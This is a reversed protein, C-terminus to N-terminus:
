IGTALPTISYQRLDFWLMGAGMKSLSFLNFVQIFSSSDRKDDLSWIMLLKKKRNWSVCKVSVAWSWGPKSLATCNAMSSCSSIFKLNQKDGLGEEDEEEMGSEWVKVLGIWQTDQSDRFGHIM